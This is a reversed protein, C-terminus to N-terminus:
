EFVVRKMLFEPKILNAGINKLRTRIDDKNIGTFTAEYEINM